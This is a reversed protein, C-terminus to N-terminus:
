VLFESFSEVEEVFFRVPLDGDFIKSLNKTFEVIVGPKAKNLSYVLVLVAEQVELLELLHHRVHRLLGAQVVMALM